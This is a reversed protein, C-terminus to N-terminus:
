IRHNWAQGIIIFLYWCRESTSLQLRRTFLLLLVSDNERSELKADLVMAIATIVSM